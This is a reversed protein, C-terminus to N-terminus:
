TSSRGQFIEPMEPALAPDALPNEAPEGHALMCLARGWATLPCIPPIFAWEGSRGCLCLGMGFLVTALHFPRYSDTIASLREASIIRVRDVGEPTYLYRRATDLAAVFGPVYLLVFNLDLAFANYLAGLHAELLCALAPHLIRPDRHHVICTSPLPM